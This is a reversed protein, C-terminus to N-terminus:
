RLRGLAARFGPNPNAEPLVGLVDDLADALTRGTLHAGYLAAVIPTRSMAQVCHLLVTKDEARLAAVAAAADTLGFDLNPNMAPRPDDILWIGVHDAAPIGQAPVQRAGLRCLSVVANVGDPLHDLADVGGLWVRQDYPHRALTACKAFRSYDMRDASPWGQVDPCGGRTTMVSLRVLDRSRLGPWGHLQRRWMASVASAGHVGGLLAGAGAAVTDADQGGRVATELGTRLQEAPASGPGAARCSTAMASWAGQLARVVRGDGAYDEPVCGEARDLRRAWVSSRRAPLHGLAHRLGALDGHLVVHRIALCWLACAEGAEPDQRTSVSLRHAARVLGAPDDLFALAVPATRMLCSDGACPRTRARHAQAARGFESRAAVRDQAQRSFLDHGEAAVEAVAIAMSTDDTWEGPEWGFLGGGTMAVPADPGVPPGLEFPAGLADGCAMGLLVGAARDFQATSLERTVRGGM